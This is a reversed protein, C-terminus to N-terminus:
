IKRENQTNILRAERYIYNLGSLITFLMTLYFLISTFGSQLLVLLITTMQLFTTIKGLYHPSSKIKGMVLYILLGGILILIDRSIIAVTLWSPIRYKLGMPLSLIITASMLLVKDAIPDLIMGLLTKQKFARAIIGDVGDSIIALVFVVITAFLYRNLEEASAGNDTLERFHLLLWAFVPTCLIRFITIRNAWNLM